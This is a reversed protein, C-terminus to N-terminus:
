NAGITKTTSSPPISMSPPRGIFHGGLFIKMLAECWGDGFFGVGNVYDVTEPSKVLLM